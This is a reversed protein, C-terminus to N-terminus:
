TLIVVDPHETSIRRTIVNQSSLDDVTVYDGQGKVEVISADGAEIARAAERVAETLTEFISKM